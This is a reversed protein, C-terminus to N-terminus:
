GNKATEEADLAWVLYAATGAIIGLWYDSRREPPVGAQCSLLHEIRALHALEERLQERVRRVRCAAPRSHPYPALANTMAIETVDAGRSDNRYAHM